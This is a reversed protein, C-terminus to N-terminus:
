SILKLLWRRIPGYQRQEHWTRHFQLDGGPFGETVIRTIRGNLDIVSQEIAAVRAGYENLSSHLDQVLLLIQTLITESNQDM